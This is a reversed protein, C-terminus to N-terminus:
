HQVAFLVDIFAVCRARKLTMLGFSAKTALTELIMLAELLAVSIQKEHFVM